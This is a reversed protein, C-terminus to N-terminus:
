RIKLNYILPSINIEKGLSKQVTINEIYIKIIDRDKIKDKINSLSNKMQDTIKNNSNNNYSRFLGNDEFSIRFELISYEKNNLSIESLKLFDVMKITDKMKYGPIMAQVNDTNQCNAILSIAIIAFSILLKKM